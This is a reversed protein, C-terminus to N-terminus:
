WRRGPWCGSIQLGTSVSSSVFLIYCLCLLIYSLMWNSITVLFKWKCLVANAMCATCFVFCFLFMVDMGLWKVFALCVSLTSKLDWIYTHMCCLLAKNPSYFLRRLLADSEQVLKEFEAAQNQWEKYQFCFVGGCLHGCWCTMCLNYVIVHWVCKFQDILTLIWCLIWSEFLNPQLLNLVQSPIKQVFSSLFVFLCPSDLISHNQNKFVVKLYM